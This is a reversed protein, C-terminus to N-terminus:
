GTTWYYARGQPWNVLFIMRGDRSQYARTGTAALREADLDGRVLVPWWEIRAPIECRVGQLAIEEPKLLARLGDVAGAPFNLLGWREFGDPVYAVRLEFVSEPLGEPVWGKEIAGAQRAEALTGYSMTKTKLSSCAALLTLCLVVPGTRM